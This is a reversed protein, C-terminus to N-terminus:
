TFTEETKDEILAAAVILNRFNNNIAMVIFLIMDFQNTKSTTDIVIVDHFREYARIQALFMWFLVTLRREDPDIQTAMELKGQVTWFKIKECMEDTLRRFRPATEVILPNMPHNHKGVITNIKIRHEIKPFSLNIHWSCDIIGSEKNRRNEMLITKEAEHIHAHFCEFTRRCTISNDVLDPVHCQKRLCFGEQKGYEVLHSKTLKWTDFKMGVYLQLRGFEDIDDETNKHESEEEHIDKPTKIISGNIANNTKFGNNPKIGFPHTKSILNEKYLPYLLDEEFLSYLPYYQFSLNTDNDPEM